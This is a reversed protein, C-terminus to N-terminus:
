YDTYCVTLIFVIAENKQLFWYFCGHSPDVQVRFKHFLGQAKGPTGAALSFHRYATHNDMLAFNNGSPVVPPFFVLIGQSMGFQLGNLSSALAQFAPSKHIAVEIYSQFRTGHTSPGNDVCSNRTNEIARSIRFGTCEARDQVQRLQRQIVGRFDVRSEQSPFRSIQKLFEKLLEPLSSGSLFDYEDETSVLSRITVTKPM